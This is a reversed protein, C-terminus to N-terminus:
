IIPVLDCRCGAAQKMAKLRSNDKDEGVIDTQDAPYAFKAGGVEFKEGFKVRVGNMAAHEERVRDDGETVWQLEKVEIGLANLDNSAFITAAGSVATSTTISLRYFRSAEYSSFEKFNDRIKSMIDGFAAEEELNKQLSANLTEAADSLAMEISKVMQSRLSARTNRSVIGSTVATKLSPYTAKFGKEIIELAKDTARNMAGVDTTSLKSLDNTVTKFKKLFLRIKNKGEENKETNDSSLDEIASAYFAALKQVKPELVDKLASELTARSERFAKM